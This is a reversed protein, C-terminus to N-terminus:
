CATDGKMSGTVFFFIVKTSLLLLSTLGGPRHHTPLPPPCLSPTSRPHDRGHQQGGGRCRHKRLTARTTAITGGAAQQRDSKQGQTWPQPWGM